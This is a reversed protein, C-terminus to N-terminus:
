GRYPADRSQDWRQGLNDQLTMQPSGAAQIGQIPYAMSIKNELSGLQIAIGDMMVRDFPPSDRDTTIDDALFRDICNKLPVQETGYNESELLIIELAEHIDIM